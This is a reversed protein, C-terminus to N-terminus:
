AQQKVEKDSFNVVRGEKLKHSMAQTVKPFKLDVGHDNDILRYLHTVLHGDSFKLWWRPLPVHHKRFFEQADTDTNTQIVKRKVMNNPFKQPQYGYIGADSFREFVIERSQQVNAM